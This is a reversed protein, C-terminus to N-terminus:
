LRKCELLKKSTEVGVIDVFKLVWSQLQYDVGRSIFALTDYSDRSDSDLEYRSSIEEWSGLYHHVRLLGTEYSKWSPHPCSELPKTDDYDKDNVRTSIEVEEARSVDVIFKGGRADHWQSWGKRDHHYNHLTILKSTDIDIRIRSQDDIKVIEDSALLSSESEEVRTFLTRPMLHCTESRWPEENFKDQIYNFVTQRNLIHGQTMQLRLAKMESEYQSSELKTQMMQMKESPDPDSDNRMGNQRFLEQDVDDDIAITNFTIFENSDIMSVWSHGKDKHHLLCKAFFKDEQNRDEVSSADGDGIITNIDWLEIEMGIEAKRWMELIRSVSSVASAGSDGDSNNKSLSSLDVAVVLYKLPLVLWHYALWEPLRATDYDDSLLLCGGFGNSPIKMQERESESRQGRLFYIPTTGHGNSENQFTFLFLL